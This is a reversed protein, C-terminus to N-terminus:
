TKSGLDSAALTAGHAPALRCILFANKNRSVIASARGSAGIRGAPSIASGFRLAAAAPALPRSPRVSSLSPTTQDFGIRTEVQVAEGFAIRMM